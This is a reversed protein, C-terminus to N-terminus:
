LSNDSMNLVTFYLTTSSLTKLMWELTLKIARAMTSLTEDVTLQITLIVLHCHQLIYTDRGTYKLM